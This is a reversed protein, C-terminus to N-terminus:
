IENLNVGGFVHETRQEFTNLSKFDFENTLRMIEVLRGPTKCGRTGVCNGTLNDTDKPLKMNVDAGIIVM